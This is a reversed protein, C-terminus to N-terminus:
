ISLMTSTRPPPGGMWGVGRRGGSRLVPQSIRKGRRLCEGKSEDVGDLGAGGIELVLGVHESASEFDADLLVVVEAELGLAGGGGGGEAAAAGGEAVGQADSRCSLGVHRMAAQESGRRLLTM